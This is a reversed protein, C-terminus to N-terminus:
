SQWSTSCGSCWGAEPWCALAAQVGGPVLSGLECCQRTGPVPLVFHLHVFPM